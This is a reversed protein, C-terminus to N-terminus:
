RSPAREYGQRQFDAVYTRLSAQTQDYAEIGLGVPHFASYSGCQVTQGAANRLLITESKACAGVMLAAVLVLIRM